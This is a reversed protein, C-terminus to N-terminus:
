DGLDPDVDTNGIPIEIGILFFYDLFSAVRHADARRVEVESQLRGAVAEVTGIVEPMKLFVTQGAHEGADPCTLLCPVGGAVSVLAAAGDGVSFAAILWQGDPLVSADPRHHSHPSFGPM